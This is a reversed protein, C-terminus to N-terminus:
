SVVGYVIFRQELLGTFDDNLRLGFRHERQGSLIVSESVTHFNFRVALTEPISLGTVYPLVSAFDVYDRNARIRGLSPMRWLDGTPDAKFTFVGSTLPDMDGYQDEDSVKTDRILILLEKIVYSEHLPPKIFFEVPSASYDGNAEFAGTQDGNTDLLEILPAGSPHLVHSGM